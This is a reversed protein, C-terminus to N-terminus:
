ALRRRYRAEAANTVLAALLFAALVDMGVWLLAQALSFAPDFIVLALLALALPLTWRLSVFARTLAWGAPRQLALQFAPPALAESALLGVAGNKLLLVVALYAGVAGASAGQARLGWLVLVALAVLRGLPLRRDLQVLGAWVHPRLARPAWYVAEARVPERGERAGSARLLEAYLANTSYFLHDFRPAQRALRAAAWALLAAPALWGWPGLAAAVLLAAAGVAFVRASALVSPVLGPPVQLSARPERQVLERYASGRRGEQWAQSAPGIAAYHGFADLGVAAVALLSTALVSAPAGHQVAILVPPVLFAGVVFGWARGQRALLAGPPPNLLPLLGLRRDPLLVHPPAVAFVGAAVFAYRLLALGPRAEAALLGFLAGLGGVLLVVGIRQAGGGSELGRM